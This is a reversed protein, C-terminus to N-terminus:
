RRQHSVIRRIVPVEVRELNNSRGRILPASEFRTEGGAPPRSSAGGDRTAVGAGVDSGGADRAFAIAAAM